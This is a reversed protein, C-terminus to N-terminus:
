EEPKFHRPLRLLRIQGRKSYLSLNPGGQGVKATARKGPEEARRHEIEISFDTSIMGSTAIAVNVAADEWLYVEIEGTETSLEQDADTVGTELAVSLDGRASKAQVNGKVSRIRIDGSLSSASLDGEIGKVDIKDAETLIELTAGQPVFLVLDVRDRRDSPDADSPDTTGDEDPKAGPAVSVDLGAGARQRGVQLEPLGHDLRQITALIEVQSEYGGFRAYVDGYPNSVRVRGGPDIAEFWQYSNKEWTEDLEPSETGSAITLCLTTLVWFLGIRAVARFRKGREWREM